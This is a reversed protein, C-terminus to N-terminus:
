SSSTSGFRASLINGVEGAIADQMAFVDAADKESKYTEEIQGNAVNFLQSTVRFKGGALQYNSALVYDVKQEQGAALPDQTIDAYKRTASLPRVVFGKMSGLRHILSDAIGIEYIEDRNATNIPKLPLVAVSKKGGIATQGASFFYYGLGIASILLAALAFAALPKFGNTSVAATQSVAFVKESDKASSTENTQLDTESRSFHATTKSYESDRRDNTSEDLALSVIENTSLKRGEAFSAAFTEEDLAARAAALSPEHDARFILPPQAGVSELLVNIAGLIKAARRPEDDMVAIAALPELCQVIGWKDDLEGRLRLSERCLDKAQVFDGKAVMLRGYNVLVISLALNNGTRKAVALSEDLMEATRPLDNPQYIAALVVLTFVVGTDYDLERYLSLSEELYAISRTADGYQYWYSMGLVFLSHASIMPYNIQRALALSEECVAIAQVYDSRVWIMQGLSALAKARTAPAADPYSELAASLREIGESLYGRLTWFLTLAAALKLQNEDGTKRSWALAARFNDREAEMQHLLNAQNAGMLDREMQKAYNLFFDAHRRRVAAEGAANEALREAAFERITELMMLRTEGTHEDTQRLLNSGVLSELGDLVETNDTAECIAEAAEVTFGGAFVALQKFLTKENEGLLDYSWAITDRMTQQRAPLDKTQSTLLKLRNELRQLLASPSLLKVRAAALEIALPLGDLKSCIEAIALANEDALVFTPKVARAREIFLEVSSYKKLKDASLADADAPPVALPPVVLENEASLRLATRSTVLIKLHLSSDLLESLAPAAAVIQEFNDLVLLIRREHLFTKLTEIQSKGGTEKVDLIQAIASVVRDPNTVAALEVFFVGDPFEALCGDAVTQALVTKGTGGTGTLTVFRVNERLLLNEIAAIERTRGFLSRPAAAPLASRELKEDFTLNEKLNNLDTLLEKMTQYRKDKNKRLTKSVIRQIENPADESFRSLSQPESNILNAFSESMSDGAFPTRGAIMEYIVAGFSFIDTREDVWEGKAQEPSMYNVTGLIVGKATDNRKATEAELGFITQKPQILKALGFDLVKVYRVPRLMINEPKIDRHVLHAEHATCLANAIQISIDLIESLRLKSERIIERLTKGEVYESVIFNADEAEGFEYITLINPHNLASAAKAEQIFRNLNSEDRSFKENLIKVAVRRDLKRDRALYVEGMGGTGIQEIIEYHGFCRGTELKKQEAEIVDAVKAVAPTEMFSTAGDLSSLLSEVETLLTKDEGCAEHVFKRREEPQRRLASDFVERVKQWKEDPM